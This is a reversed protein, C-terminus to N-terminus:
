ARGLRSRDPGPQSGRPLRGPSRGLVGPRLHRRGLDGPRDGRGAAAAAPAAPAPRQAALGFRDEGDREFLGPGFGFTITLRSPLHGVAEGTDEPPVLAEDNRDGAREGATM